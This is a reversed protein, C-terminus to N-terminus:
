LSVASFTNKSYLVGRKILCETRGSVLAYVNSGFLPCNQIFFREIGGLHRKNLPKSILEM